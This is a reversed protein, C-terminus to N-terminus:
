TKNRHEMWIKSAQNRHPRPKPFERKEHIDWHVKNFWIQVTAQEDAELEASQNWNGQENFGLYDPVWWEPMRLSRAGPYVQLGALFDGHDLVNSQRILPLQPGLFLVSIPASSPEQRRTAEVVDCLNPCIQLGEPLRKGWSYIHNSQVTEWTDQLELISLIHFALPAFSWKHRNNCFCLRAKFTEAYIGLTAYTGSAKECLYITHGCLLLM